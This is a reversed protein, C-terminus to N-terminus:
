GARKLGQVRKSLDKLMQACDGFTLTSTEDLSQMGLQARLRDITSLQSESAPKSADYAPAKREVPADAIREQGEDLEPAFQTGYGLAALARGIAKTEAKEIFDRFDKITESGHGVAVSNGNCVTARFIAVGKDLDLHVVETSIQAEPAQERLWVLRWQVPLYWRPKYDTGLNILHESPQFAVETNM